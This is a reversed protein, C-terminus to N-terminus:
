RTSARVTVPWIIATSEPWCRPQRVGSTASSQRGSSGAGGRTAAGAGLGQADEHAAQSQLGLDAQVRVLAAAGLRQDDVHLGFERGGGTSPM